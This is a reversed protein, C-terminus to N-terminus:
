WWDMLGANDVEFELVQRALNDGREELGNDSASDPQDSAVGGLWPIAGASAADPSLGALHPM